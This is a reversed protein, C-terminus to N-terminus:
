HRWKITPELNMTGDEELVAFKVRGNGKMVVMPPTFLPRRIFALQWGFNELSHLAILQIDNLYYLVDTPLAARTGRSDEKPSLMAEDYTANFSHFSDWM